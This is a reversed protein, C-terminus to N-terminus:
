GRRPSLDLARARLVREATDRHDRVIRSLGGDGGEAALFGDLRPLFEPTVAPYPFLVNALLVRMHGSRTRWLDPIEALFRSAYPILLDAHEPQMLGDAVATVTEPGNTEQMLLRWAAEKHGSDPIAARCAAPFTRTGDLLATVLQLEDGTAATWSLLGFWSLQHDSGPEASCLLEAAASALIAKCQAAQRSDAYTAILKDAHAHLAQLVRVSREARMGGALMTAFTRVPLEAQRAMDIVATWCAARAPLDPIDGVSETVTRLSRDDFRMLVYATDSDNLVILEPQATGV